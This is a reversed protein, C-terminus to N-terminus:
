TRDLASQGTKHGWMRQCMWLVESLKSAQQGQPCLSPLKYLFHSGAQIVLYFAWESCFFSGTYLPPFRRYHVCDPLLCHVGRWSTQKEWNFATSPILDPATLKYTFTHYQTLHWTWTSFYCWTWHHSYSAQKFL